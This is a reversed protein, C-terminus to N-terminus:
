VPTDSAMPVIRTNQRFVGYQERLDILDNQFEDPVLFGSSTNVNERQTKASISEGGGDILPIGQRHCFEIGQKKGYVGLCFMGFRYAREDAAAGSFHKLSSYRKVTAPVRADADDAPATFRRAPALEKRLTAFGDAVASQILEGISDASDDASAQTGSDADTQSGPDPPLANRKM